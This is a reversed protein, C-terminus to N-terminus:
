DESNDEESSGTSVNGSDEKDIAQTELQEDQPPIETSDTCSIFVVTLALFVVLKKM